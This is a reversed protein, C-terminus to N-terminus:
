PEAPGLRRVVALSIGTSGSTGETVMGGKCLAGSDLAQGFRVAGSLSPLTCCSFGLRLRDVQHERLCPIYVPRSHVEQVIQAAVRDKVSGGPNLFECKGLIQM